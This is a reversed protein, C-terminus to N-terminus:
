SSQFSPYGIATIVIIFSLRGKPTPKKEVAIDMVELYCGDSLRNIFSKPTPAHSITFSKNKRYKSFVSRVILRQNDPSRLIVAFLLLTYGTSEIM